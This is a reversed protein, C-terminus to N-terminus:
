QSFHKCEKTAKEATITSVWGSESLIELLTDFRKEMIKRDVTGIVILWFSSIARTLKHKLPLHECLEEICEKIVSLAVKRFDNLEKQNVTPVKKM